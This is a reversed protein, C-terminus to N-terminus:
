SFAVGAGALSAPFVVVVFFNRVWVPVPTTLAAGPQFVIAAASTGTSFWFVVPM